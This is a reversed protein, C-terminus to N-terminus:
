PHLELEEETLEVFRLWKSLAAPDTVEVRQSVAHWWGVQIVSSERVISKAVTPYDAAMRGWAHYVREVYRRLIVADYVNGEYYLLLEWDRQSLKRGVIGSGPRIIGLMGDAPVYVPYPQLSELVRDEGTRPLTAAM